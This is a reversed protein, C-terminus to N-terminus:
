SCRKTEVKKQMAENAKQLANRLANGFDQHVQTFNNIAREQIFAKCYKLSDAINDVLRAREAEDM